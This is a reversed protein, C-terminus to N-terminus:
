AFSILHFRIQSLRCYKVVAATHKKSEPYKHGLRVQFGFPVSSHQIKFFLIEHLRCLM